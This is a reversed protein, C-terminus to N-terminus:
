LRIAVRGWSTAMGKVGVEGHKERKAANEQELEDALPAGALRLVPLLAEKRVATLPSAVPHSPLPRTPNLITLQNERVSLSFVIRRRKTIM